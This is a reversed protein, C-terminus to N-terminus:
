HTSCYQLGAELGTAIIGSLSDMYNIELGTSIEAVSYHNM